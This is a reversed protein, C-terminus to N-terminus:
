IPSSIANSDSWYTVEPFCQSAPDCATRSCTSCAELPLRGTRCTPPQAYGFRMIFTLRDKGTEPALRRFDAVVSEAQKRGVSRLLEPSGHRLINEMIAVSMM